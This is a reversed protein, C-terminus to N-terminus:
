RPRRRTGLVARLSLPWLILLALWRIPMPPATRRAAAAEPWRAITADILCALAWGIAWLAAALYTTHRAIDPM